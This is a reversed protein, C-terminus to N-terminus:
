ITKGFDYQIVNGFIVILKSIVINKFRINNDQSFIGRKIKIM